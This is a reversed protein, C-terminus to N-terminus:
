PVKQTKIIEDIKSMQIHYLKMEICSNILNLTNMWKSEVSTLSSFKNYISQSNKYNKVEPSLEINNSSEDILLLFDTIKGDPQGSTELYSQFLNMTKCLVSVPFNKFKIPLNPFYINLLHEILPYKKFEEIAKPMIFTTFSEQNEGISHAELFAEGAILHPHENMAISGYNIAGRLFWGNNCFFSLNVALNTWLFNAIVLTYFYDWIENRQVDTIEPFDFLSDLKARIQMYDPDNENIWLIINDAQLECKVYSKIVIEKFTDIIENVRPDEIDGSNSIISQMFSQIFNLLVSKKFEFTINLYYKEISQFCYLLKEMAAKDGLAKCHNRFGMIDYVAILNVYSDITEDSM